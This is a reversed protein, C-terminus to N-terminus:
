VTCLSITGGPMDKSLIIQWCPFIKGEDRLSPLHVEVTNIRYLLDQRFERSAVKEKIPLNTACILRIDVEVPNNSGVRIIKRQQLANLLKAQLPLSLNGIEDLFLTGRHALEFRGIRHDRADTFAGKVHGFLESEFLTESVAGMDVSVFVEKARHSQRHLERAILEKGTGNEGLILVNADTAAIKRITEFVRKIGDSQGIIEIEQDEKRLDPNTNSPISTESNNGPKKVKITKEVTELLKQSDWPKLCM